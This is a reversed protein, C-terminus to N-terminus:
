HFNIGHVGEALLKKFIRENILQTHTHEQTLQTSVSRLASNWLGAQPSQVFEAQHCVLTQATISPEQM